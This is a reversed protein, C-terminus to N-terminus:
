RPAMRRPVRRFIWCVDPALTEPFQLYDGPELTRWAAGLRFTNLLVAQECRPQVSVIGTQENLSFAVHVPALREGHVALAEDTDPDSGLLFEGFAPLQVLLRAPAGHESCELWATGREARAYLAVSPTRAAVARDISRRRLSAVAMTGATFLTVALAIIAIYPM